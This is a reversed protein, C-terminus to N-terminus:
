LGRRADGEDHGRHSAVAARRRFSLPLNQTQVANGFLRDANGHVGRHVHDLQRLARERVPGEHVPVRVFGVTDDEDVSDLRVGVIVSAVLAPEHFHREDAEALQLARQGDVLEANAAQAVHQARGRRLHQGGSFNHGAHAQHFVGDM